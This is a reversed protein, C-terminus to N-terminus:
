WDNSFELLALISLCGMNLQREQRDKSRERAAELGSETMSSFKSVSRIVYYVIGRKDLGTPEFYELSLLIDEVDQFSDEIKSIKSRHLDHRLLLAPIDYPNKELRENILREIEVEDGKAFLSFFRWTKEASRLKLESLQVNSELIPKYYKFLEDLNFGHDNLLRHVKEMRAKYPRFPPKEGILKLIEEDRDLREMQGVLLGQYSYPDKSKKEINENRSWIERALETQKKSMRGSNIASKLQQTYVKETHAVILPQDAQEQSFNNEQLSVIKNFFYLIM